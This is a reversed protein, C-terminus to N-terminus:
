GHLRVLYLLASLIIQTWAIVGPQKAWHRVTLIGSCALAILAFLLTFQQQWFGIGLIAVLLILTAAFPLREAWILLLMLAAFLCNIILATTTLGHTISASLLLQLFLVELQWGSAKLLPSMKQTALLLGLGIQALALPLLTWNASSSIVALILAAVTWWLPKAFNALGAMVLILALLAILPGSFVIGPNLLLPLLAIQVVATVAAFLSKITM